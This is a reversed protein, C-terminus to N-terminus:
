SELLKECTSLLTRAYAEATSKVWKENVFFIWIIIIFSNILISIIVNITIEEIFDYNLFYLLCFNLVISFVSIIVTLWKMGLMNRSYGYNINDQYLLPFKKTDRTNELLWKVASEYKDQSSKPNQIEENRSPLKLGEINKQLYDHYRKKTEIDITNDLHSLQLTAPLGGWKQILKGQVKKGRERALKGLFFLLIILIISILLSSKLSILQSFWPLITIVFPLITLSAPFIRAKLEYENLNNIIKNFM